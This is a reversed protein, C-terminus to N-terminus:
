QDKFVNSIDGVNTFLSKPFSHWSFAEKLYLPDFQALYNDQNNPDQRLLVSKFRLHEDPSSEHYIGLLM